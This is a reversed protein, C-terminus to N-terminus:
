SIYKLFSILYRKFAKGATNFNVRYGSRIYRNDRLWKPSHKIHGVFEEIKEKLKSSLGQHEIEECGSDESSCCADSTRAKPNMMNELRKHVFHDEM